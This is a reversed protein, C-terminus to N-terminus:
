GVLWLSLCRVVRQLAFAGERGRGGACIGPATVSLASRKGIVVYDTTLLVPVGVISDVVGILRVPHSDESTEPGVLM